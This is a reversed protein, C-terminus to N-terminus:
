KKSGIWLTSNESNIDSYPQLVIYNNIDIMNSLFNLFPSPSIYLQLGKELSLKTGNWHTIGRRYPPDFLFDESVEVLFLFNQLSAGIPNITYSPASNVIKKNFCIGNVFGTGNFGELCVTSNNYNFRLGTKLGNLHTLYTISSGTPYLYQTFINVFSTDQLRFLSQKTYATDFKIGIYELENENSLYFLDPILQPDEYNYQHLLSGDFRIIGGKSIAWINNLNDICGRVPYEVIADIESDHFEFSAGNYKVISLKRDPYKTGFLYIENNSVGKIDTLYYQPSVMIVNTIGKTVKYLSNNYNNL